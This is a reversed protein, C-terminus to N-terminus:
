RLRDRELESMAEERALIVSQNPTVASYVVLVGFRHYTSKSVTSQMSYCFSVNSFLLCIM